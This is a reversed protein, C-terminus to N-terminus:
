TPRVVLIPCRAHHTVYQSVSGLLAEGLMSRAGGGVVLLDYGGSAEALLRGPPGLEVRVADCGHRSLATVAERHEAELAEGSAEQGAMTGLPVVHMLTIHPPERLQVKLADLWAVLRDDAAGLDM